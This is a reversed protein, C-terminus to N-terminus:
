WLQLCVTLKNDICTSNGNRADYVRGGTVWHNTRFRAICASLQTSLMRHSPTSRLKSKSNDKVATEASASDSKKRKNAKQVTRPMLEKCSKQRCTDKYQALTDINKHVM